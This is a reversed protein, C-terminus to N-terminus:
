ALIYDVIWKVSSTLGVSRKRLSAWIEFSAMPLVSGATSITESAKLPNLGVEGGRTIVEPKVSSLSQRLCREM